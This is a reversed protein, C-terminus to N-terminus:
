RKESYQYSAQIATSNRKGQKKMRARLAALQIRENNSTVSISGRPLSLRRATEVPMLEPERPFISIHIFYVIIIVEYHPM